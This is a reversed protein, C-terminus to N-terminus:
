PFQLNTVTNVPVQLGNGIWMKGNQKSLIWKITDKWRHRHRVLLRKEEYKRVMNQACKKGKRDTSFAMVM